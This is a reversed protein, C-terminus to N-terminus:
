RAKFVFVLGLNEQRIGESLDMFTKRNPYLIAMARGKVVDKWAFTSSAENADHYFQVMVNEGSPTLLQVRPRIFFEAEVIQGLFCWHRVPSLGSFGDEGYYPSEQPAHYDPLANFSPYGVPGEEM